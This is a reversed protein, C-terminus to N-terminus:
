VRKVGLVGLSTSQPVKFPAYICLRSWFISVNVVNIIFPFFPIIGNAKLGAFLSQEQVVTSLDRCYLSSIVNLGPNHITSISSTGCGPFQNGSMLSLAPHTPVAPGVLPWKFGMCATEGRRAEM